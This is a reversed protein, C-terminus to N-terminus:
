EVKSAVFVYYWGQLFGTTRLSIVIMEEVVWSLITAVRAAAGILHRKRRNKYV